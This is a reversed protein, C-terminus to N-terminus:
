LLPRSLLQIPLADFSGATYIIVVSVERSRNEQEWPHRQRWIVAAGKQVLSMWDGKLYMRLRRLSKGMQFGECVYRESGSEKIDDCKSGCRFVEGGAGRM